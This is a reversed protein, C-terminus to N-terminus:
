VKLDAVLEDKSRDVKLPTLEGAFPPKDDIPTPFPVGQMPPPMGLSTATNQTIPPTQMTVFPDTPPMAPSQMTPPGSFPATMFPPGAPPLAPGTMTPPGSFPVTM